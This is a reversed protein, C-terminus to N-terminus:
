HKALVERKRKKVVRRITINNEKEEVLVWDKIRNDEKIDTKDPMISMNNPNYMSLGKSIEEHRITLNLEKAKYIIQCNLNNQWIRLDFPQLEEQWLNAIL